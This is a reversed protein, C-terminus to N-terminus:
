RESMSLGFEGSNNLSALDDKVKEVLREALKKEASKGDEAKLM